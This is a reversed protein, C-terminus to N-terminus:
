FRDTPQLRTRIHLVRKPPRQGRSGFPNVKYEMGGYAYIWLPRIGRQHEVSIRHMWYGEEKKKM